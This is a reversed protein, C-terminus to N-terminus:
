RSAELVCVVSGVHDATPAIAIRERPSLGAAAAESEFRDASLRALRIDDTTETLEGTPSVVQRLRSVVYGGPESRVAVPLSSYVWGDHERVDPLPRVDTEQASRGADEALLAAAFTGGPELHAAITRCLEVREAATAFLHVFQMPAFVAAFPRGLALEGVDAVETQVELGRAAANADLEALLVPSRDVAVVERDREALHLAVRGAGAGLEVVPGAAERALENWIALDASYAGCEVEHWIAEADRTASM